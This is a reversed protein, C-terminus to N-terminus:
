DVGEGWSSLGARELDLDDIAKMAELVAMYDGGSRYRDILVYELDKPSWDSHGTIATIVERKRAEYFAKENELNKADRRERQVAEHYEKVLVRLQENLTANAKQTARLREDLERFEGPAVSVSKGAIHQIDWNNGTIAAQLKNISQRIKFSSTKHTNSSKGTEINEENTNVAGAPIKKTETTM